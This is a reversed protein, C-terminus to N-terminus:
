IQILVESQTGSEFILYDEKNEKRDADTNKIGFRPVEGNFNKNRYKFPISKAM